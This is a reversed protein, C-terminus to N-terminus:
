VRASAIRSRRPAPLGDSRGQFYRERTQEPTLLTVESFGFGTLKPVLEDELLYSRFPEGLAAVRSALSPHSPDKAEQEPGSFTFAIESSPPLSAVFSFVQNVAAEELYVLVGLCSMFAPASPDFGSQILGDRLSTHEFDIGAWVLNEPPVIGASRLREQKDRQSSPHDIEFIRLDAAWAPQRYAFSDLGAGLLVYQRVGRAVAEQLRDEAFRSRTVVHSRLARAAPAQLEAPNTALWDRAMPHLLKEAIPDALVKPEGDILQHAARLLAVGAATKSPNRETM